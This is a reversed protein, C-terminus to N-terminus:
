KKSKLRAKIYDYAHRLSSFTENGSTFHSERLDDWIYDELVDFAKILHPWTDQELLTVSSYAEKLEDYTKHEIHLLIGDVIFRLSDRRVDLHDYSFKIEILNDNGDCIFKSKAFDPSLGFSKEIHCYYVCGPRVMVCKMMSQSPWTLDDDWLLKTWGWSNVEVEDGFQACYVYLIFLLFHVKM